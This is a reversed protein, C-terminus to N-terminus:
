ITFMKKLFRLNKSLQASMKGSSQDTSIETYFQM